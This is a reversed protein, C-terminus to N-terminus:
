PQVGDIPVQLYDDRFIALRRPTITDIANQAASRTMFWVGCVGIMWCFRVKSEGVTFGSSEEDISYRVETGDPPACVGPMRRLEAQVKRAEVHREAYARHEPRYVNGISLRCKDVSDNQWTAPGDEGSSNIFYYRDGVQPWTNPEVAKLKALHADIAAIGVRRAEDLQENTYNM